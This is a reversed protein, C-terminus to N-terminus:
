KIRISDAWRKVTIISTSTAKVTGSSFGKQLRFIYYFGTIENRNNKLYSTGTLTMPFTNVTAAQSLSYGDQRVAIEIFSGGHNANTVLASPALYDWAPHSASRVAYIEFTRIPPAAGPLPLM